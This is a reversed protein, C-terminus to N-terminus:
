SLPHVLYAFADAQLLAGWTRMFAQYGIQHNPMYLENYRVVSVGLVDRIIYKTFDGFVMSIKGAGIGDMDQNFFFPFGLITDAVGDALSVQWIPRGYKDKTKRV